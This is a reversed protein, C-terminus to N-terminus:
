GDFRMRTAIQLIVNVYLGAAVDDLMVGLGGKIREMYNVPPPKIIDFARFLFFALVIVVFGKPVYLISVFFGAVEDIVIKGSDKEKFFGEAAHAAVTGVIIVVATIMLLTFDSPWFLVFFVLAALTGFTGSAIPAYGVCWVTAINSLIKQPLSSKM